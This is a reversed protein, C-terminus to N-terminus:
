LASRMYEFQMSREAYGWAPNLPKLMGIDGGIIRTAVVAGLRAHFCDFWGAGGGIEQYVWTEFSLTDAQTAFLLTVPVTVMADASIRRQKAPGREMESRAVVPTPHEGNDRWAIKVYSPLAAM